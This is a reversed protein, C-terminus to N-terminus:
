SDASQRRRLHRVVARVAGEPDKLVDTEWVRVVSWGDARLTRAVRRDRSRNAAIKAVWYEPNARGRLRTQLSPWHRGHWFDGDCFVALLATRFVIDPKGPLDACHTEFALGKAKLARVLTREAKTETSRVSRKIRSSTESAPKFRSYPPVKSMNAITPTVM